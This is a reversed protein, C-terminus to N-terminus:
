CFQIVYFRLTSHPKGPAQFTPFSSLNILPYLCETILHTPELPQSYQMSVLTLLVANYVQYTSLSSVSLMRSVSYTQSSVFVNTLKVSTIMESHTCIYILDDYQIGRVDWPTFAFYLYVWVPLHGLPSSFVDLCSCCSSDSFIHHGAVVSEVNVDQPSSLGLAKWSCPLQLWQNMSAWTHSKKRKPSVWLM